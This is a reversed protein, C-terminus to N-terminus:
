YFAILLYYYGNRKYIHPGEPFIGGTGDWLSHKEGVLTFSGLDIEQIWIETDGGDELNPKQRNAIFYAKDDDFFLSSDIGYADKLYIVESWPGNIDNTYMIFHYDDRPWDNQIRTSTIYYTGKHYRISAAQVGKSCDLNSLDLKQSKRDVANGIQRWHVLDKSHWIPIAPFYEFSSNILYFDDEVRIISPDPFFGPIIPNKFM